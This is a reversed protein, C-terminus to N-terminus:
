LSNRICMSFTFCNHIVKDSLFSIFAAFFNAQLRLPMSAWSLPAAPLETKGEVLTWHSLPFTYTSSKQVHTPNPVLPSLVAFTCFLVTAVVLLSPKHYMIHVMTTEANAWSFILSLFVVLTCRNYQSSTLFSDPSASNGSMM